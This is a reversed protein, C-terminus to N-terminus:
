QPLTVTDAADIAGDAPALDIDHHYTIFAALGDEDITAGDAGPPCSVQWDTAYRWIGTEEGLFQEATARCPYRAGSPRYSLLRARVQDLYALAGSRGYQQRFLVVTRWAPLREQAYGYEPAPKGFTAGRYAVLVAGVPHSLRYSDPREPFLEVAVDPLAARLTAVVEELLDTTPSDSM